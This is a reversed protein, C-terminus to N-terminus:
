DEYLYICNDRLYRASFRDIVPRGAALASFAVRVIAAESPRANRSPVLGAVRAADEADIPVSDTARTAKEKAVFNM